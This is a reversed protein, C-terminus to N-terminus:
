GQTTWGLGSAAIVAGRTSTTIVATSVVATSVVPAIVFAKARSVVAPAVVACGIVVHAGVIVVRNQMGTEPVVVVMPGRDVVFMSVVMVARVIMVRNEVVV